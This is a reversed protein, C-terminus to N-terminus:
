LMTSLFNQIFSITNNKKGSFHIYVADGPKSIAAINKFANMIKAKKPPTSAGDDLLTVINSEKFGHVDILYEKMNLVDNICGSLAGDQGVYNIGIMVARKTGNFGEPSLDFTTDVDLSVSSSLQPVQSYGKSKLIDRVQCLTDKYSPNVSPKEKNAYLVKLLASTCAGGSRGAPDPLGFSAVNSVIKKHIASVL